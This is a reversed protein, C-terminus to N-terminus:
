FYFLIFIFNSTVLSKMWSLGGQQLHSKKFKTSKCSKIYIYIYITRLQSTTIINIKTCVSSEFKNGYSSPCQTYTDSHMDTICIFLKVNQKPLSIFYFCCCTICLYTSQAYQEIRFLMFANDRLYCKWEVWYLRLWLIELYTNFM